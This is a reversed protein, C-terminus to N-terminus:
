GKPAVSLDKLRACVEDPGLASMVDFIPPSVSTGTIAARLPQAVAGLKLGKVEAYARIASELRAASWNNIGLLTDHIEALM